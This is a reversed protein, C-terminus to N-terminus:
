RQIYRPKPTKPNTFSMECPQTMNTSEDMSKSTKPSQQVSDENEHSNARTYNEYKEKSKTPDDRAVALETDGGNM